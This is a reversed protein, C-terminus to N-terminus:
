QPWHISYNIHAWSVTYLQKKTESKM